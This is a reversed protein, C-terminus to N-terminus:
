KKGKKMIGATSIRALREKGYENGADIAKQYWYVAKEVEDDRDYIIGLQVM